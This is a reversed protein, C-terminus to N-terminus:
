STSAVRLAKKLSFLGEYLARGVIVGYIGLDRLIVIDNLSRVGGSAIVKADLDLIKSLNDIDPGSLSGDRGISTVLLFKIGMDIFSRAAERLTMNTPERWGGVMIRGDLHDLAVVLRSGGLEELLGRVARQDRLALSGIVVREAGVEILKLAREVSRVGGGVQVPTRLAQIIGTIAGTNDGSGLAADLDVIHILQAGESEWRKAITVPDGLHDYHWAHKPDGRLLRVVRGGMLDVSPIVLM